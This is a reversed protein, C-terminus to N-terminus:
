IKEISSIDIKDAAPVHVHFHLRRVVVLRHERRVHAHPTIFGLLRVTGLRQWEDLQGGVDLVVDCPDVEIEVIVDVGREVEEFTPKGGKFKGDVTYQHKRVSTNKFQRRFSKLSITFFVSTFLPNLIVLSIMRATTDFMWNVVVVSSM